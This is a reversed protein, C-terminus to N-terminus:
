LVLQDLVSRRVRLVLVVMEHSGWPYAELGFVCEAKPLEADGGLKCAAVTGALLAGRLVGRALGADEAGLLRTAPLYVLAGGRYGGVLSPAVTQRPLDHLDNETILLVLQFPAARPAYAARLLVVDYYVVRVHRSSM